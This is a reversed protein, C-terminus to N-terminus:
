EAVISIRSYRGKFVMGDGKRLGCLFWAWRCPVPIRNDQAVSFGQDGAKRYWGLAKHLDQPVNHGSNYMLGVSYQAEAYGKEAAKLFWTMAKSYDQEVGLGNKYMTGVQRQSWMHGPSGAKVYWEMAKHYNQPISRGTQYLEGISGQASLNGQNAAKLYWELALAHNIPFGPGGIHYLYAIHDMASTNGQEAARRYCELAKFYDKAVGQGDRYRSGERIDDAIGTSRTTGYKGSNGTETQGHHTNNDVSQITTTSITSMDLTDYAPPLTTEVVPVEGEVVVELVVNPVAAIKKFDPGKLSPLIRAGNRTHLPEKFASVVDDWLITDKGLSPDPHCAVYLINTQSTSILTPQGYKSILRVAQVSEQEM